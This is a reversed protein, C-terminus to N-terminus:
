LSIFNRVTLNPRKPPPSRAGKPHHCSIQPELAELRHHKVGAHRRDHHQDVSQGDTLCASSIPSGSTSTRDQQDRRMFNMDPGLRTSLSMETASKPPRVVGIHGGSGGGGGHILPNSYPQHDPWGGSGSSGSVFNGYAGAFYETHHNPLGAVQVHNRTVSSGAAELISIADPSHDPVMSMGGNSQHSRDHLLNPNCTYVHDHNGSGLFHSSNVIDPGFLQRKAAQLQEAESSNSSGSMMNHHTQVAPPGGQLLQLTTAGISKLTGEARAPPWPSSPQSGADWCDGFPHPLGNHLALPSIPSEPGLSRLLQLPRPKGFLHHHHHDTDCSSTSSNFQNHNSLKYGSSSQASKAFLTTHHDPHITDAALHHEMFNGIPQGSSQDVQFNTLWNSIVDAQQFNNSNTFHASACSTSGSSSSTMNTILDPIVDNGATLLTVMSSTSTSTICNSVSSSTTPLEEDDHASTWGEWMSAECSGAAPVVTSSTTTEEASSSGSEMSASNCYNDSSRKQMQVQLNALDTSSGAVFSFSFFFFVSTFVSMTM